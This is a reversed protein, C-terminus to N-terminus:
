PLKWSDLMLRGILKRYVMTREEERLDWAPREHINSADKIRQRVSEMFSKKLLRAKEADYKKQAEAKATEYEAFAPTQPLYVLEVDFLIENTSGFNLFSMVLDFSGDDHINEIQKVTAQKN